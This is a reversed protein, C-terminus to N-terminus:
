KKRYMVLIGLYVGLFTTIGFVWGHLSLSSLSGIFAGVNCGAALRAGYGMIFGGAIALAVQRTNRIKKWSFEKASLSSFLVGFFLGVIIVLDMEFLWSTLFRNYRDSEVYYNWQDVGFGFIGMIRASFLTLATTVGWPKGNIILVMANFIAIAIGGWLYPWEFKLVHQLRSRQGHKPQIQIPKM